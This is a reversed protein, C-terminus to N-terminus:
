GSGTGAPRIGGSSYTWRRIPVFRIRLEDISRAPVTLKAHGRQDRLNGASNVVVRGRRRGVESFDDFAAEVASSGDHAGANSGQSVNVVVPKGLADAAQHIFTLASQHSGSYGISGTGDALVVLLQTGPAVGGAFAGSRLGVAMSAVHTGHGSGRALAPPAEEREVYRRIDDASHYTGFRFGEPPPGSDDKQDWVGIIRPQGEADRFARHLV